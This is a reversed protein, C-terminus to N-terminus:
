RDVESEDTVEEDPRRATDVLLEAIAARLEQRQKADLGATADEHEFM